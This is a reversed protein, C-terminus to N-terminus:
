ILIKCFIIKLLRNIVSYQMYIKILQYIIKKELKLRNIRNVESVNNVITFQLM